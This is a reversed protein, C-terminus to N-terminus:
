LAYGRRLYPKTRHPIVARRQLWEHANLAVSRRIKVKYTPSGGFVCNVPENLYFALAQVHRIPELVDAM